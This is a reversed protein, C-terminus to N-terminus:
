HCRQGQGNIAIVQPFTQRRLNNVIPPTYVTFLLVTLYMKGVFTAHSIDFSKLCQLMCFLSIHGYVHIISDSVLFIQIDCVLESALPKFFMCPLLWDGISATPTSHLRLFYQILVHIPLDQLLLHHEM